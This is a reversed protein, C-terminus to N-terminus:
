FAVSRFQIKNAKFFRVHLIQKLVFNLQQIFSLLVSQFIYFFPLATLFLISLFLWLCTSYVTIQMNQQLM